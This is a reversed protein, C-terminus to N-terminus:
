RGHAERAEIELARELDAATDIDLFSRLEPDFARLEAPDPNAVHLMSLLSRLSRQDAALAREAPALVRTRYAATLPHTRDNIRPVVADLSPDGDLRDFLHALLRPSLFPSDCGLLLASDAGAAARLGTVFGALPGEFRYEPPDTVIRVESAHLDLPEAGRVVLCPAVQQAREIVRDLLSHSGFPVVAKNCGLRSSRGGALVIAIKNM